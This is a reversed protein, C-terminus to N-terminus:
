NLISLATVAEYGAVLATLAMIFKVAMGALDEFGWAM